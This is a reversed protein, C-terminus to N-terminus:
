WHKRSYVLQLQRHIEGLDDDYVAFGERRTQILYRCIISHLDSCTGDFFIDNYTRVKEVLDGSYKDRYAHNEAFTWLDLDFSNATGLADKYIELTFFWPKDNWRAGKARSRHQKQRFELIAHDYRM